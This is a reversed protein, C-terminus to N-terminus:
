RVNALLFAQSIGMNEGIWTLCQRIQKRMDFPVISVVSVVWLPHLLLLGGVPRGVELGESERGRAGLSFTEPNNTLFFPITAAIGDALKQAEQRLQERSKSDGLKEKCQFILDLILLRTKRYTNWVAAV